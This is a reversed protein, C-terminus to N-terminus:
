IKISTSVNNRKGQFRPSPVGPYDLYVEKYQSGQIIADAFDRKDHLSIYVCTEPILINVLMFNQLYSWLFFVYRKILRDNSRLIFPNWIVKLCLKLKSNMSHWWWGLLLPHPRQDNIVQQGPLRYYYELTTKYTIRSRSM